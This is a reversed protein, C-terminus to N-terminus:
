VNGINGIYYRDRISQEVIGFQLKRRNGEFPQYCEGVMTSLLVVSWTFCKEPFTRYSCLSFDTLKRVESCTRFVEMCNRSKSILCKDYKPRCLKEIKYQNWCETRAFSEDYQASGAVFLITCVSVNM